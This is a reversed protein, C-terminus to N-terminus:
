VRVGGGGGGGVGAEGDGSVGPARPWGEDTTGKRGVRMGQDTVGAHGWWDQPGGVGRGRDMHGLGAVGQVDVGARPSRHGPGTGVPTGGGGGGGRCM